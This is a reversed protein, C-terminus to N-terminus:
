LCFARATPVDGGENAGSQEAMLQNIQTQQTNQIQQLENIDDRHQILVEATAFLQSEVSPPRDPQKKLQEAMEYFARVLKLKFAKVIDSNRMYTILLTAQRENLLAIKREQVGGATEFSQTEFAVGGFENLDNVNQRVLEMVNKHQIETGEAILLSTTTADGDSNTSILKSNM